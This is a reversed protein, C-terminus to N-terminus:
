QAIVSIMVLSGAIFVLACALSLAPNAVLRPSHRIPSEYVAFSAAAIVVTLLIFGVRGVLPISTVSGWWHGILVLVPIEWLYLGYSWRGVANAPRLALLREAGWPPEPTGGLIVLAAGAVPLAPLWDPYSAALVGWGGPTHLAWSLALASGVTLGLGLWTIAGATRTPIRRFLPTNVALLCGVALEWAHTLPSTYAILGLPGSSVVSWTFSAMVATVLVVNIRSRWSWAKAFIGVAILLAPYVLYFQEEVALSWFYYLPNPRSLEGLVATRDFNFAFLVIWRAESRFAQTAIQGATLRECILAVVVVLTALPVIRRARRAYFTVLSIHGALNLERLFVGSIVFGSIVFFVDVGVLGGSFGPIGFHSFLVLLIAVARMGEVDPRFKRDGPATRAEDGTSLFREGGRTTVFLHNVICLDAWDSNGIDTMPNHRTESSRSSEHM